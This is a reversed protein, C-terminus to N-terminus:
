QLILLNQNSYFILSELFQPKSTEDEDEYVFLNQEVLQLEQPPTCTTCWTHRKEVYKRSVCWPKTASLVLLSFWQAYAVFSQLARTEVELFDGFKHCVTPGM